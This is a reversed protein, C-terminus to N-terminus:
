MKLAHQVILLISHSENKSPFTIGLGTEFCSTMEPKLDTNFTGPIVSTPLGNFNDSM